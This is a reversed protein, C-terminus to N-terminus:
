QKEIWLCFLLLLATFGLFCVLKLLILLLTM